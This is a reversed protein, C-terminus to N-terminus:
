DHVETGHGTCTNEFLVSGDESREEVCLLADVDAKCLESGGCVPEPEAVSLHLFRTGGGYRDPNEAQDGM